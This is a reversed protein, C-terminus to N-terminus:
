FYYVILYHYSDEIYYFDGNNSATLTNEAPLNDLTAVSHVFQNLEVLENNAQAFYLRDTDTTLYFAGEVYTSMENLHQQTGRKFSVNAM